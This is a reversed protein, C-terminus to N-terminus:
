FQDCPYKSIGMNQRNGMEMLHTHPPSPLFSACQRWIGLSMVYPTLTLPLQYFRGLKVVNGVGIYKASIISACSHVILILKRITMLFNM